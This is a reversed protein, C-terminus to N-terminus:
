DGPPRTVPIHLERRKMVPGPLPPPLGAILNVLIHLVPEALQLRATGGCDAAELMAAKMQRVAPPDDAASAAPDEGIAPMTAAGRWDVLWYGDADHSVVSLSGGGHGAMSVPNLMCGTDAPQPLYDKEILAAPYPHGLSAAWDEIAPNNAAFRVEQGSHAPWLLTDAPPQPHHESRLQYVLLLARAALVFPLLITAWRALRGWRGSLAESRGDTRAM